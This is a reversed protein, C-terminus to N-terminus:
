SGAPLKGRRHNGSSSAMTGNAIRAMRGNATASALFPQTEWHSMTALMAMNAYM